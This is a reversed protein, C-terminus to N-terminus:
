EVGGVSALVPWILLRLFELRLLCSGVGSTLRQGWSAGRIKGDTTYPPEQTSREGLSLREWVTGPVLDALQFSEDPHLLKSPWRM